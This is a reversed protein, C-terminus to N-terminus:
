SRVCSLQHNRGDPHAMYIHEQVADIGIDIVRLTGARIQEGVIFLLLLTIGLGAIAADRMMDGNNLAIGVRGRVIHTKEDQRFRWDDSGRNTYFIGRHGELEVLTSPTGYRELYAPAAVLVPRSTALRLAM